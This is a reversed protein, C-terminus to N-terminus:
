NKKEYKWKEITEHMSSYAEKIREHGLLYLLYSENWWDIKYAYLIMKFRIGLIMVYIM